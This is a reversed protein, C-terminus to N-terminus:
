ASGARRNVARRIESTPYGLVARERGSLDTFVIVDGDIRYTENWEIEFSESTERVGTPLPEGARAVCRALGEDPDLMWADGSETSFFVLHGLTIV